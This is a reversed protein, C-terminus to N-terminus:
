DPNAVGIILSDLITLYWIASIMEDMWCKRYM